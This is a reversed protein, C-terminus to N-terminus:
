SSCPPGSSNIKLHIKREDSFAINTGDAHAQFIHKGPFRVCVIIAEEWSREHGAPRPLFSPFSMAETMIKTPPRSLAGFATGRWSDVYRFRYGRSLLQEPECLCRAKGMSRNFGPPLQGVYQAHSHCKPAYAYAGPWCWASFEGWQLAQKIKVRVLPPQSILKSAISM